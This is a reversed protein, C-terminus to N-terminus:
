PDARPPSQYIQIEPIRWHPIADGLITRQIFLRIRELLVPRELELDLTASAPDAVLRKVLRARDWPDSALDLRRWRHSRHYGNVALARPFESYPYVFGLSIKSVWFEGGLEVDFYQGKEQSAGSSWSTDLRGDVALRPDVSSSTEFRFGDGPIGDHRRAETRPPMARPVVTFAVENGYGLRAAAESAGPFERLPSYEPDRRLRRLVEEAEEAEESQRARGPHYLIMRVGLSQLIRTTEVSPFDQFSWLLYELAPPYFSPRGFFVRKWHITSFYNEYGYFRLQRRPYVPFEAVAFDGPVTALWRYAEPVEEPMPIRPYPREPLRAHELPVLVLFAPIAVGRVRASLSPLFRSAGVGALLSLSLAFYVSLREPVRAYHFFPVYEYLVRYPGGAIIRGGVVTEAGASLFAFFLGLLAIGCLLADRGRVARAIGALGLLLPILGIFHANAGALRSAADGSVGRYLLSSEAPLLYRLLDVGEPLAQQFRYSRFTELYPIEVPVFLLAGVALPLLLRLGDRVNRREPFLLTLLVGFPALFLPLSILYYHSSFGQVVCSAAFGAASSTSGTRFFRVLFALALPLFPMFLIHLRPAEGLNFSSLSSVIGAAFSGAPSLGVERALAFTALAIAVLTAGALLNYALVLNAGLKMFLGVALGQPIFHESYVLGRPHPFYVNADFLSSPESPLRHAVWAMMWTAQLADGEDPLHSAPHLSLPLFLLFSCFLIYFALALLQLRM